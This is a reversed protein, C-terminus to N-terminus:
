FQSIASWVSAIQSQYPEQKCLELPTLQNSTVAIRISAETLIKANMTSLIEKLAADAHFARHSPNLVAVPKLAFPEFGVLWDLANKISGTVGHAYEPTSFVIVDALETQRFFQIVPEVPSKEQDPNFLPLQGVLDDVDFTINQPCSLELASLLAKSRSERRLSGAIGLVNIM